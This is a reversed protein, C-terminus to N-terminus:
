DHYTNSMDALSHVLYKCVRMKADSYDTPISVVDGPHVKVRVVIDSGSGYHGLYGKSCVHLGSSCTISDDDQVDFRPMEVITGVSNDITRTYCDKFDQTVIKWALFHGDETIEIDNARLFDFLRYVTKRTPNEMVKELFAVLSSIDGGKQFVDVIREALGSKLEVDKYMLSNGEITIDGNVYSLIKHKINILGVASSIDDDILYALAEKFHEHTSDASIVEGTKTIITIYKSTAEWTAGDLYDEPEESTLDEDTDTSTSGDEITHNDIVDFLEYFGDFDDINLQGVYLTTGRVPVFLEAESIALDEIDTELDEFPVDDDSDDGTITLTANSVTPDIVIVLDGAAVVSPLDVSRTLVMKGDKNELYKNSNFWRSVNRPDFGMSGAVTAYSALGFHLYGMYVSLKGAPLSKITRM